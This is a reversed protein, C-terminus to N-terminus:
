TPAAAAADLDADLWAILAELDAPLPSAFSLREGTVPHTFGLTEAHLAPRGLARLRARVERAGATGARGGAAGADRRHREICAVAEGNTGGYTEDGLIPHGLHRAHVRIQVLPHLNTSAWRRRRTLRRPPGRAGLARVQHTRGTDLKWEVLSAGGRALPAVLRFRSSATRAGGGASEPVVAMRKRDRPDRGIHTVVQAEPRAPVGRLVALYRREVSREMFQTSLGHHTRQPAAPKTLGPKGEM